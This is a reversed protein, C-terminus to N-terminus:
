FRWGIAARAVFGGEGARTAYGPAAAVQLSGDLLTAGVTLAALHVAGGEAGEDADEGSEELDQGVYEAGVRLGPRVEVSAGVPVVVDVPDAGEAFRKEVQLDVTADVPGARVGGILWGDVAAAGDLERVAGVRAAVRPVGLARTAQLWAGGSGRVAESPTTDLLGYAGVGIGDALATEGGLDHVLGDARLGPDVFRVAGSDSAGFGVRYRAAAHGPDVTDATIVYAYPPPAPM